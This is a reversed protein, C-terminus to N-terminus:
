ITYLLASPFIIATRLLSSQANQASFPYTTTGLAKPYLAYQIQRIRRLVLSTELTYRTKVLREVFPDLRLWLIAM